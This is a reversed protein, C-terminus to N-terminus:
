KVSNSKLKEILNKIFNARRAFYELMKERDEGLVSQKEEKIKEYVQLSLVALELELSIQGQGHIISTFATIEEKILNPFLTALYRELFVQVSQNLLESKRSSQKAHQRYGILIDPLNAFKIGKIACDIWMGLDCATISQNYNINLPKIYAQRYISTPNLISAGAQCLNAKIDKDILPVQTYYGQHPHGDIFCFVNSGLVGIDTHTDLYTIQKEFRKPHCIDDADMRAVYDIDMNSTLQMAFQTAVPDGQNTKFHYVQLRPERSAYSELIDASGDDSGDNVALICFDTFTQALLSDLCEELSDKANYVPLIVALRM